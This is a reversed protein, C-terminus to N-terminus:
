PNALAHFKLIHQGTSMYWQHISIPVHKNYVHTKMKIVFINRFNWGPVCDRNPINPKIVYLNQVSSNKWMHHITDHPKTYVDMQLKSPNLALSVPIYATEKCVHGAAATQALTVFSAASRQPGHRAPTMLCTGSSCLHQQSRLLPITWLYILAQYSDVSVISGINDQHYSNCPPPDCELLVYPVFPSHKQEDEKELPPRPFALRSDSRWIRSIHSDKQHAIGQVWIPPFHRVSFKVWNKSQRLHWGRVTTTSFHFQPIQLHCLWESVPQAATLKPNGTFQTIRALEFNYFNYCFVFVWWM